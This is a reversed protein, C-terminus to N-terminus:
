SGPLRYSGLVERVREVNGQCALGPIAGGLIALHFLPIDFANIFDQSNTHKEVDKHLRSSIAQYKEFTVWDPSLPAPAFLSELFRLVHRNPFYCTERAEPATILKLRFAERCVFFAQSSLSEGLGRHGPRGGPYVGRHLYQALETPHKDAVDWFGDIFGREALLQRIKVFDYIRRWFFTWDRDRDRISADLAERVLADVVDSSDAREATQWLRTFGDFKADFQELFQIGEEFRRGSQSVNAFCLVRFWVM